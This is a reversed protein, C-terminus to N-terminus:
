RVYLYLYIKLFYSFIYINWLIKIYIKRCLLIYINTYFIQHLYEKAKVERKQFSFM